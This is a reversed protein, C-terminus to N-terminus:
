PKLTKVTAPGPTGTHELGLVSSGRGREEVHRNWAPLIFYAELWILAAVAIEVYRYKEALLGFLAGQLPVVFLLVRTVNWPTTRLGVAALTIPATLGIVLLAWGSLYPRLANNLWVYQTTIALILWVFIYLYASFVLLVRRLDESEKFLTWTRYLTRASMMRATYM